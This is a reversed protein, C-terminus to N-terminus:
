FIKNRWNPLRNCQYFLKLSQFQCFCVGFVSVYLVYMYVFTNYMNMAFSSHRLVRYSMQCFVFRQTFLLSCILNFTSTDIGPLFLEGCKPTKTFEIKVQLPHM